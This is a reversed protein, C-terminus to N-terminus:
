EISACEFAHDSVSHCFPAPEHFGPVHHLCSDLFVGHGPNAALLNTHILTTLNAGWANVVPYNAPDTANIGLDGVMQWSDYEAQLPFIPTKIHPSTHEAFYCKWELGPNAAICADNVGSSSNFLYFNAKMMNHYFPRANYMSDLFFGSDPMGRVKVSPAAAVLRDAWNDVHLYTALGGASCGSIVVDTSSSLGRNKFLDKKQSLLPSSLLLLLRLLLLLHLCSFAGFTNAGLAYTRVALHRELAGRLFGCFLSLSLSLVLFLSSPAGSVLVGYVETYETSYTCRADSQPRAQGPVM